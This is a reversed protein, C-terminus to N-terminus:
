APVVELLRNLNDREKSLNDRIEQLTYDKILKGDEFVVKLEGTSEEEKTVQDRLYYIGNKDKLVQLLGKASKKTGNDTAPDKFIERPVGKIEGYTAKMASKYTDRTVYQFTYSGIGFVACTSSFKKKMLGRCIAECRELTISDGYICGISPHLQKFGKKNIEGGFVEWLLEVVGKHEPSGPEADPDGCIIKIPDGSDPRIVLKGNERALIVDKLRPLFNTIVNWLDYTDSVVSVIGTPYTETLLRHYTEYEGEKGGMCMVSHETARVSGGVLEKEVNANYYEELFNIAPITDTGTFSLLHAAGSLCAAEIGAMGRMSFDHAQWQILEKIGGTLDAYKELINKYLNSTTASTTPMWIINSVLTEIFNTVWYFDSKTNVITFMPVRVPVLAGEKLAKIRIPLYGLDHLDSLHHIEVSDPGLTHDMIRKYKMLVEEKPQDFFETQFADILYEKIFYTLGFFVVHNSGPVRSGRPTFNSSVMTTGPQYQSRHDTKYFDKLFIPSIRKM